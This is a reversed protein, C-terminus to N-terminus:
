AGQQRKDQRQAAALGLLDVVVGAGKGKLSNEVFRRAIRVLRFDNGGFEPVVIRWGVPNADVLKILVRDTFSREINKRGFQFIVQLVSRRLLADDFADKGEVIDVFAAAGADVMKGEGILCRLTDGDAVRLDVTFSQLVGRHCAVLNRKVQPKGAGVM